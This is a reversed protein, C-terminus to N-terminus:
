MGLPFHLTDHMEYLSPWNQTCCDCWNTLMKAITLAPASKRRNVPRWSIPFRVGTFDCVNKAFRARAASSPLCAIASTWDAELRTPSVSPPPGSNHTVCTERIHYLVSCYSQGWSTCQFNSLTAYGRYSKTVSSSVMKQMLAIKNYKIQALNGLLQYSRILLFNLAVRNWHQSSYQVYCCLLLSSRKTCPCSLAIMTNHRSRRGTNTIRLTIRIQPGM